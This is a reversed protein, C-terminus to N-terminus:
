LGGEGRCPAHDALLQHLAAAPRLGSFDSLSILPAIRRIKHATVETLSICEARGGRADRAHGRGPM